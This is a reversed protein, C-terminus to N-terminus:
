GAGKGYDVRHVAGHIATADDGALFAVVKAVDVPDM